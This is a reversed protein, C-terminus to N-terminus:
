NEGKHHFVVEDNEFLFYNGGRSFLVADKRSWPSSGAWADDFPVGEAVLLAQNAINNEESVTSSDLTAITEPLPAAVAPAPRSRRFRKLINLM